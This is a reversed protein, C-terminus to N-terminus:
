RKARRRRRSGSCTAPIPAETPKGSDDAAYTWAKMSVLDVVGRFGKEEGIPLQLPM